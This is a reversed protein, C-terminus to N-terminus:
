FGAELGAERAQQLRLADGISARLAAAHWPKVEYRDVSGDALAAGIPGAQDQASLIIRYAHPQLARARAAVETGTLGPMCQDCVLLQVRERALIELAEEGSGARLLRYGDAALVDALLDLMFRDDDVLLLTPVAAPQPLFAELEAVFSDPEIPKGIYGTFGAALLREREGEEDLASIAVLPLGALAPDARLAAAVGYGDLGPLRLDCLVLEPRERRALAIGAAGDAAVLPAHGHASLLFRMLEVNAPTDEIILIRAV